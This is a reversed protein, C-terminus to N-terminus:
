GVHAGKRWNVEVPKIEGLVALSEGFLEFRREKRYKILRVRENDPMASTSHRILAENEMIDRLLNHTVMREERLKVLETLLSNASLSAESSRQIEAALERRMRKWYGFNAASVAILFLGLVLYLM